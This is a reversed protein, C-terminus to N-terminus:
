QLCYAFVNTVIIVTCLAKLYDVNTFFTMENRTLKDEPTFNRNCKYIDFKLTRTVFAFNTLFLSM